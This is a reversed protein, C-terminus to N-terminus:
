RFYQSLWKSRKFFFDEFGKEGEVQISVLKGTSPVIRSAGLIFENDIYGSTKLTSVLLRIDETSCREGFIIGRLAKKDFTSTNINQESSFEKKFYIRFEKEYGWCELKRFIVDEDNEIRIKYPEKDTFSVQLKKMTDYDVRSSEMEDTTSEKLGNLLAEKDFILCIGKHEDAYHSWLLIEDYVRSFCAVKFKQFYEKKLYSNLDSYFLNINAKVVKIRRDIKFDSNQYHSDHKYFVKLAEDSPLKMEEVVYQGEFPDNLKSFSSFWLESNVIMRFLNLNVSTFKFLLNENSNELDM